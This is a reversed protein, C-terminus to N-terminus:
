GGSRRTMFISVAGLLGVGVFVVGIITMLPDGLQLFAAKGNCVICHVEPGHDTLIIILGGVIIFYPYLLVLIRQV